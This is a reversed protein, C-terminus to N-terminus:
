AQPLLVQDIVHILGNSADLDATSVNAGGVMVNGDKSTIRLTSGRLTKAEGAEVATRADVRGSVVHLKLIAVLRGKNEPKLVEEVIGKPLAAFAADTPAFM